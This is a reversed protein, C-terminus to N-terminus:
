KRGADYQDHPRQDPDVQAPEKTPPRDQAAGGDRAVPQAAAQDAAEREQNRRADEYLAAIAKRADEVVQERDFSRDAPRRSPILGQILTVINGVAIVADQLEDQCDDARGSAAQWLMSGAEMVQRVADGAVPAVACLQELLDGRGDGESVHLDVNAGVTVVKGERPDSRIVQGFPVQRCVAYHTAGFDLGADKLRQVAVGVAVGRTCPVTTQALGVGYEVIVTSGRPVQTDAAPSMTLVRDVLRRQRVATGTGLKLFLGARALKARAKDLKRDVLDPVTTLRTGPSGPAGDSPPVLLQLEEVLQGYQTVLEALASQVRPTGYGGGIDADAAERLLTAVAAANPLVYRALAIRGHDRALNATQRGVTQEAWDLLQEVSLRDRPRSALPLVLVQREAPGVYVSDLADRVRDVAEGITQFTLDLHGLRAGIFAYGTGAGSLSGAYAQWSQWLRLVYETLVRFHTLSEEELPTNARNGLHGNRDALPLVPRSALGALDRLAGLAGEVQDPNVVATGDATRGLLVRLQQEVLPARPGDARGFEARLQEVATRVVTCLADQDDSDSAPRLSAIRRLLPLGRDVVDRAQALLGAQEGSVVSEDAGEIIRGPSAPVYRRRGDVEEEVFSSALAARFRDVDEVRTRTGIVARLAGDVLRDLDDGSDGRGGGALADTVQLPYASVDNLARALDKTSTAM